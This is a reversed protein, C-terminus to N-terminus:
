QENVTVPTVVCGDVDTFALTASACPHETTNAYTIHMEYKGIPGLLPVPLLSQFDLPRGLCHGNWEWAKGIERFWKRQGKTLSYHFHRDYGFPHSDPSGVGAERHRPWRNLATAPQFPRNRDTTNFHDILNYFGPAFTFLLINTM